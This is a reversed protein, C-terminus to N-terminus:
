FPLNVELCTDDPFALPRKVVSQFKVRGETCVSPYSRNADNAPNALRTIELNDANREAPTYRAWVLGRNQLPPSLVEDQPWRKMALKSKYNIQFFFFQGLLTLIVERFGSGM